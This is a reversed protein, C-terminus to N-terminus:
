QEEGGLMLLVAKLQAVLVPYSSGLEKVLREICLRGRRRDNVSLWMVVDGTVRTAVLQAHAIISERFAHLQSEALWLRFTHTQTFATYLAVLKDRSLVSLHKGVGVSLAAWFQGPSFFKVSPTPAFIDSQICSSDTEVFELFAMLLEKTLLAFHRLILSRNISESSTVLKKTVSSEDAPLALRYGAQSLSFRYALSSVRTRTGSSVSTVSEAVYMRGSASSAVQVFKQSDVEGEGIVVLLSFSTALQSLAMPSTIGVVCPPLGSTNAKFVAYDSDFISLLPRLDGTWELPAILSPVSLVLRSCLSADGACYVLVPLGVLLSEWLHWLGPLLTFLVDVVAGSQSPSSPSDSLELSRVSLSSLGTGLDSSSSSKHRTFGIEQIHYYSDVLVERGCGTEEALYFKNGVRRVLTLLDNSNSFARSSSSILVFSKQYYGRSNTPDEVQRFYVYCQLLGTARDLGLRVASDTASSDTGRIRYSFTYVCDSIGSRTASQSDPFSLMSIAKMDERTFVNHPYVYECIQGLNLDFAFVGFADVLKPPACPEKM